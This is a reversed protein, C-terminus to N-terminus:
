CRRVETSDPSCLGVGQGQLAHASFRPKMWVNKHCAQVLVNWTFQTQYRMRIRKFRMRIRKFHVLLLFRQAQFLLIQAAPALTHTLETHLLNGLLFKRSIVLIPRKGM